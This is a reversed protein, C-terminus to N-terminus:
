PSPGVTPTDDKAAQARIAAARESLTRAQGLFAAYAANPVNMMDGSGSEMDGKRVPRCPPLSYGARQVTVADCIVSLITAAFAKNSVPLLSATSLHKKM